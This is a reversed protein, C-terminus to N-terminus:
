HLMVAQGYDYRASGSTVKMPIHGGTSLMHFQIIKEDMKEDM